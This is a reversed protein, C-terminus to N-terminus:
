SVIDSPLVPYFPRGWDEGPNDLMIEVFVPVLFELIAASDEIQSRTTSSNWSASGHIMQNRVMYLREFLISLSTRTDRDYFSKNMRKRGDDFNTEWDDYGPLGNFYKWFQDYVFKNNTLGWIAHAFTNYLAEYIKESRDLAVLKDFFRDHSKRASLDVEESESAYAANFAIWYFIFAADMDHRGVEYEARQIWSIARHLRLTMNNRQNGFVEKFKSELREAAAM